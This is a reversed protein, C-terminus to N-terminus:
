IKSLEADIYCHAKLYFEKQIQQSITWYNWHKQTRQTGTVISYKM